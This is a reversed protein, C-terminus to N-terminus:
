FPLDDSEINNDDQKEAAAQPRTESQPANARVGKEQIAFISLTNFISTIDTKPNKWERGKLYFDVDIKQGPVLHALLKIREGEATFELTDSHGWQNRETEVVLKQSIFEGKTTTRTIPEEVRKVTLNEERHKM